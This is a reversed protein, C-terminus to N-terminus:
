QNNAGKKLNENVINSCEISAKLKPLKALKKFNKYKTTAEQFIMSRVTADDLQYTNSLYTVRTNFDAELKALENQAPAQQAQPRQQSRSQQQSNRSQKQNTNSQKQEANTAANGDDDDDSSIGFMASLQYRKAYTISSGYGQADKKQPTLVLIGSTIMQGSEHTVITEVGIGDGINSVKQFYALGTSKLAADIAKQVGSLTVYKNKFYPNDGNLEPQKLQERFKAMGKFLESPVSQEESM